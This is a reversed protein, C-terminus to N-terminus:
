SCSHMGTPYTGGAETAMEGAHVGGQWAHGRAMCVGGGCVEKAVCAGRQWACRRVVCAGVECHM